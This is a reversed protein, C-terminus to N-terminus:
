QAGQERMARSQADSRISATKPASTKGWRMPKAPVGDKAADIDPDGGGSPEPKTGRIPAGAKLGTEILRRVAEAESKIRNAFRYDEIAQAIEPTIAILKKVPFQTPPPM